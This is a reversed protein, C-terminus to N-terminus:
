LEFIGLPFGNVLVWSCELHNGYRGELSSLLSSGRPILWSARTADVGDAREDNESSGRYLSPKLPDHFHLCELQVRTLCRFDFTGGPLTCVQVLHALCVCAKKGKLRPTLLDM